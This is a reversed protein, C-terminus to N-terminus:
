KGGSQKPPSAASEARKPLLGGVKGMFTSATDEGFCRQHRVGITNHLCGMSFILPAVRPVTRIIPLYHLLTHFDKMQNGMEVIMMAPLFVRSCVDSM